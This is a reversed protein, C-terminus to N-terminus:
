FDDFVSKDAEIKTGDMFEVEKIIGICVIGTFWNANVEKPNAFIKEEMSIPIPTPNIEYNSYSEKAAILPINKVYQAGFGLNFGFKDWKQVSHFLRFVVYFSKIPKNSTNEITVYFSPRSGSETTVIKIERFRAPFDPQLVSSTFVFKKSFEYYIPEKNQSFCTSSLFLVISIIFILYRHNKMITQMESKATDFLTTKSV